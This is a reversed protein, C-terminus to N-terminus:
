QDPGASELMLIPSSVNEGGVTVEHWMIRFPQLRRHFEEMSSADTKNLFARVAEAFHPTPSGSSMSM